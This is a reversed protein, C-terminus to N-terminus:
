LRTRGECWRRWMTRYAAEVGRAFSRADTLPSQLMRGRLSARLEALRPLDRALSVAVAVFQESVEAALGPLGLNSLQSWGARGVATTGVLTVVPVGMWLSDLGTTHGNYPFTDLAVDIGQYHNLYQPRPLRPVFRVRDNAIGQDYLVGLVRNRFSGEPALVVLRSRELARLVAAWLRVVPENVRTPNILCGFTVFGNSLAPLPGVDPTAEPPEYCWFTHPLRLSQEVYWRDNGPPDLYPDTLRYDIAKLGTTGPYGAFTVQVPAPKRAFVLLRRGLHLELDVLIDIRDERVARALREEDWGAVDRWADSYGRFLETAHDPADVASYSFVEVQRHDHERMLPLLNMAVVHVRFDASVYGVRLRREPSPDNVYPPAAGTLPDAFRSAWERHERLVADPSYGPHLLMAFLRRNAGGLEPKLAASRECSGIAADLDAVALQAGALDNWAEAFDPKSSLAGRYAEIAEDFRGMAALARAAWYLGQPDSPSLDLAHRSAALADAPRKQRVLIAALLCYGQAWNANEALARAYVATAERLRGAAEHRRALELDQEISM